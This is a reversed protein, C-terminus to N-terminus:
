KTRIPDGGVKEFGILKAKSYDGNVLKYTKFRAKITDNKGKMTSPSEPWLKRFDRKDVYLWKIGNVPDTLFIRRNNLRYEIRDRIGDVQGFYVMQYKIKSDISVSKSTPVRLALFVIIFPLLTLTNILIAWIQNRIFVSTVFFLFPIIILIEDFPFLSILVYMGVLCLTLGIIDKSYNKM